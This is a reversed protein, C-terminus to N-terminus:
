SNRGGGREGLSFTKAAGIAVVPAGSSFRCASDDQLVCSWQYLETQSCTPDGICDPDYSLSGDLLLRSSRSVTKNGGSISARLSSAQMTLTKFVTLTDSSSRSLLTVQYTRSAKLSGPSVFLIPGKRQLTVQGSGGDRVTWDFALASKSIACSSFKATAKLVLQLSPVYPPPPLTIDIIPPPISKRVLEHAVQQSTGGLFSRARVQLIYTVEPLLLSGPLVIYSGREGALLENVTQNTDCSWSFDLPRPSPASASLEAEDCEGVFNPGLVSLQPAAPSSPPLIVVDQEGNLSSVGNLSRLQGGLLRVQDGPLLQANSGLVLLLSSSDSFSCRPAVGMSEVVVLLLSCTLDGLQANTPQDFALLLSAGQEDFTAQLVRPANFYSLTMPAVKSPDTTSVITLQSNWSPELRTPDPSILFRLLLLNNQFSSSLLQFPTANGRLQLTAPKADSPFGRLQLLLETELQNSVACLPSCTVTVSPDFSRVTLSATENSEVNSVVLEDEGAQHQPVQLIFAM